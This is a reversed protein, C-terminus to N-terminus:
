KNRCRHCTCCLPIYRIIHPQAISLLDTIYKIITTNNMNNNSDNNGLLMNAQIMEPTQYMNMMGTNNLPNFGVKALTKVAEVFATAGQEIEDESAERGYVVSYDLAILSIKKGGDGTETVAYEGVKAEALIDTVENESSSVDSTDNAQTNETDETIVNGCGAALLVMVFALVGCFARKMVVNFKM